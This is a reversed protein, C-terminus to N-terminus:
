WCLELNHLTLVFIFPYKNIWLFLSHSSTLNNNLYLQPQQQIIIEWLGFDLRDVRRRSPLTSHNPLCQGSNESLSLYLTNAMDSGILSRSICRVPSISCLHKVLSSNKDKSLSLLRGKLYSIGTDLVTRMIIRQGSFYSAQSSQQGSSVSPLLWCSHDGSSTIHCQSICHRAVSPYQKDNVQLSLAKREEFEISNVSKSNRRQYPIFSYNSWIRASFFLIEDKPVLLKTENM